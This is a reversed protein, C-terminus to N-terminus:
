YDEPLLICTSERVGADNAAETIVWVKEGEHGDERGVRFSSLIRSGDRLAEKNSEHDEAGLTGQELALHRQLLTAPNTGTAELLRLAGPTAVTRGLTFAPQHTASM